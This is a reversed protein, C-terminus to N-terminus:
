KSIFIKFCYPNRDLVWLCGFSYTIDYIANFKYKDLLEMNLRGNQSYEHIRNDYVLLLKGGPTVTLAEAFKDIKWILNWDRSYINVVWEGSYYKVIYKPDGGAQVVSIKGPLRIDTIRHIFQNTETNYESIRGDWGGEAILIVNDGIATIYSVTEVGEPKYEINCGSGDLSMKTIVNESTSVFLYDGYVSASEYYAQQSLRVQYRKVVNGETNIRQLYKLEEDVLIVTGDGVSVVELLNRIDMTGGPKIESLLELNNLGNNKDTQRPSPRLLQETEPETQLKERLDVDPKTKAMVKERLSVEIIKVQCMDGVIKINPKMNEPITIKRNLIMKTDNMMGECKRCCDKIKKILDIDSGQQLNNIETIQKRVDAFHTNIEEHSNILPQYLETIVKLQGKMQNLITEVEDCKTILAIMCEEVEDTDQKLIEACVEVKKANQKFEQCLKNLSVKLEQLGTKLDVIQDCHQEHQPDCTCIVCLAEECEPCFYELLEGHEKCKKHTQEVPLTEEFPLINHAKLVPIRQHKQYCAKCILRKPCSTCIFEVKADKKKCMQCFHEFRASLEQEREWVKSVDTNRPLAQIGGPPLQTPSRCKPCNVTNFGSLKQLCPSCFTHGCSLLRPQKNILSELCVSCEFLEFSYLEEEGSIVGTAM